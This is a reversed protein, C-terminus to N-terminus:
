EDGFMIDNVVSELYEQRGSCKNEMVNLRM